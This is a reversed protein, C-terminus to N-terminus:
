LNHKKRYAEMRKRKIKEKESMDGKNKTAQETKSEKLSVYFSKGILIVILLWDLFALWSGTLVVDDYLKNTNLRELLMQFHILVLIITGLCANLYICTILLKEHTFDIHKEKLVKRCVVGAFLVSIIGIAVCIILTATKVLIM